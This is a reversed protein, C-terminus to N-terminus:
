IRQMLIGAGRARGGAAREERARERAESVLVSTAVTYAFRPAGRGLGKGTGMGKGSGREGGGGKRGGEGEESWREMGAAVAKGNAGRLM